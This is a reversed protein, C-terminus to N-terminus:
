NILLGLDDPRAALGGVLPERRVLRQEVLEVGNAGVALLEQALDLLQALGRGLVGLGDGVQAGRQPLGGGPGLAVARGGLRLRRGRGDGLGDLAGRRLGAMEDEGAGGVLRRGVAGVPARGVDEVGQQAEVLEGRQVGVGVAEAARQALGGVLEAEGPALVDGLQRAAALRVGVRHGVVALAELEARVDGDARARAGAEDRADVQVDGVPRALHRAPEVDAM